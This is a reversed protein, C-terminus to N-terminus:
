LGGGTYLWLGGDGEALVPERTFALRAADSGVWVAMVHALPDAVPALGWKRKYQHVGDKVFPSTRGLDVRTCGQARAWAFGLAYIAVSVGARVLAQDGDRVGSLPLWLTKGRRLSCFGGVRVGGRVVFHLEGRRAFRRRLYPSPLWADGGFRASAQPAVMRTTFEEWDEPGSAHELTFGQSRVKRLDDKLSHSATPPPLLALDGQWRVQEPVVIWGARRFRPAVWRHVQAVVLHAAGAYSDPHRLSRSSGEDSAPLDGFLRACLPQTVKSRGIELVTIERGDWQVVRRRVPGRLQLPLALVRHAAVTLPAWRSAYTPVLLREEIRATSRM